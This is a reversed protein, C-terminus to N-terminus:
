AWGLARAKSLPVLPVQDYVADSKTRFQALLTDGLVVRALSPDADNHVVAVQPVDGDTDDWVVILDDEQPDFGDFDPTGADNSFWDAINVDTDVATVHLADDGADGFADSDSPDFATTECGGVADAEALITEDPAECTARAVVSPLEATTELAAEDDSGTSQLVPDDGGAAEDNPGMLADALAVSGDEPTDDKANKRFPLFWLTTFACVALLGMLGSLWLM